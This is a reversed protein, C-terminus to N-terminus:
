KLNQTINSATVSAKELLASLASLAKSRRDMTLQVRMNSTQGMADFSDQHTRVPKAIGSAQAAQDRRQQKRRNEEEVQAMQDRLEKDEAQTLEFMVLFVLSEIDADTLNQGVFRQKVAARVVDASADPRARTQVAQWNVWDRVGPSLQVQLRQQTKTAAPPIEAPVTAAFANVTFLLFALWFTPKM